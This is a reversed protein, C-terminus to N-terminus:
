PGETPSHAPNQKQEELVKKYFRGEIAEKAGNQLEEFEAQTFTATHGDKSLIIESEDPIQATHGEDDVEEDHWKTVQESLTFGMSELFNIVALGENVQKVAESHQTDFEEWISQDILDRLHVGLAKAIKLLTEQKPERQGKEYRMVAVGSIGVLEGLEEQTLGKEKRHLRINEGISM